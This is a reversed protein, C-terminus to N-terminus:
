SHSPAHSGARSNDGVSFYLTTKIYRPADGTLDRGVTSACEKLRTVRPAEPTHYDITCKLYIFTFINHDQENSAHACM